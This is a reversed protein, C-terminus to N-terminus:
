QPKRQMAKRVADDVVDNGFRNLLLRFQEDFGDLVQALRSFVSCIYDRQNTEIIKLKHDQIRLRLAQYEKTSM